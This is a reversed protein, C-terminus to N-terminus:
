GTRCRKWPRMGGLRCCGPSTQCVTVMPITFSEAEGKKLRVGHLFLQKEVAMGFGKSWGILEVLPIERNWSIVRAGSERTFM